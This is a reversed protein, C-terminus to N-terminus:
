VQRHLHPWFTLFILNVQQLYEVSRKLISTLFTESAHSRDPRIQTKLLIEHRKLNKNKKQLYQQQLLICTNFLTSSNSMLRQKLWCADPDTGPQYM